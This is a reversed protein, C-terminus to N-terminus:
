LAHRLLYPFDLSRRNNSLVNPPQAACTLHQEVYTGIHPPVMTHFTSIHHWTKCWHQREPHKNPTKHAPHKPLNTHPLCHTKTTHQTRPTRDPSCNHLLCTQIVHPHETGRKQSPPASHQPTHHHNTSHRTIDTNCELLYMRCCGISCIWRNINNQRHSNGRLTSVSRRFIVTTFCISATSVHINSDCWQCM